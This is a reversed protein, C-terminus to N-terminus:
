NTESLKQPETQGTPEFVCFNGSFQKKITFTAQVPSGQMEFLPFLHQL